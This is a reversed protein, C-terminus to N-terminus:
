FLRSNKMFILLHQFIGQFLTIWRFLLVAATIISTWWLPLEKLVILEDFGIHKGGLIEYPPCDNFAFGEEM